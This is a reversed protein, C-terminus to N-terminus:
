WGFKLMRWKMTCSYSVHQCQISVLRLYLALVPVYEISCKM